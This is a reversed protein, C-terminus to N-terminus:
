RAKRPRGRRARAPGAQGERVNDRLNVYGKNDACEIMEVPQPDSTVNDRVSAGNICRLMEALEAQKSDIQKIVNVNLSIETPLGRLAQIKDHLIAVATVRQFPQMRKIDAADITKAIDWQLRELCNAKQDRFTRLGNYDVVRLRESVNSPHCGVIKGIEVTSKGSDALSILTDIDIHKPKGRTSEAIAQAQM